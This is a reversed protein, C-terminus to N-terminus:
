DKRLIREHDKVTQGLEEIEAETGSLRNEVWEVGNAL